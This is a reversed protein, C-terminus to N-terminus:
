SFYYKTFPSNTLCRRVQTLSLFTSSNKAAGNATRKNFLTARQELDKIIHLFDSRVDKEDLAKEVQVVASSSSSPKRRSPAPREKEKLLSPWDLEKATAGGHVSRLSREASVAVSAAQESGAAHRDSSPM